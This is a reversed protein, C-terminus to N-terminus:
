VGLIMLNNNKEPRSRRVPKWTFGLLIRIDHRVFAGFDRDIRNFMSSWSLFPNLRKQNYRLLWSSDTIYLLMTTILMHDRGVCVDVPTSAQMVKKYDHIDAVSSQAAESLFSKNHEYSHAGHAAINSSTQEAM